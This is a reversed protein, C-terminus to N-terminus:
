SSSPQITQTNTVFMYIYPLLCPRPNGIVYLKGLDDGFKKKFREGLSSEFTYFSVCFIQKTVAKVALFSFLFNRLMQSETQTSEGCERGGIQVRVVVLPHTPCVTSLAAQM